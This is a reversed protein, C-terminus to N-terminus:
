HYLVKDFRTNNESSLLNSGSEVHTQPREGFDVFTDIYLVTNGGIYLESSSHEFDIKVNEFIRYTKDSM